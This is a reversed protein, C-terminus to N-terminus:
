ETPQYVPIMLKDVAHKSAKAMEKKHPKSCTLCEEVFPLDKLVSIHISGKIDSSSQPPRLSKAKQKAKIKADGYVAM